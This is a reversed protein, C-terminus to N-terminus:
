WSGTLWLLWAPVSHLPSTFSAQRDMSSNQSLNKTNLYLSLNQKAEWTKPSDGVGACPLDAELCILGSAPFAHFPLREWALNYSMSGLAKWSFLVCFRLWQRVKLPFSIIVRSKNIVWDILAADSGHMKNGTFFQCYAGWVDEPGQDTGPFGLHPWEWCLPRRAPNGLLKLAEAGNEHIYFQM